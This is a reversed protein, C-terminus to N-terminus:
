ASMSPGPRPNEANITALAATPTAANAAKRATSRRLGFGIIGRPMKEERWNLAALRTVKTTYAASPPNKKRM